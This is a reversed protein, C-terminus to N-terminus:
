AARNNHDNRSKEVLINRTTQWHLLDVTIDIAAVGSNKLADYLQFFTKWTIKRAAYRELTDADNVAQFLKEIHKWELFKHPNEMGYNVLMLQAEVQTLQPKPQGGMFLIGQKVRSTAPRQNWEEVKAPDSFITQIQSSAQTRNMDPPCPSKFHKLIELQRQSPPQFLGLLHDAEAATLERDLKIGEAELKALSEDSAPKAVISGERESSQGLALAMDIQQKTDDQPLQEKTRNRYRLFIILIAFVLLLTVEEILM